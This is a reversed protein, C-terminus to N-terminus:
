RGIVQKIFSDLGIPHQSIDFGDCSNSKPNTINKYSNNSLNQVALLPLEKQCNMDEIINVGVTQLCSHVSHQPDSEWQEGIKELRVARWSTHQGGRHFDCYVGDGPSLQELSIIVGTDFHVDKELWDDVLCQVTSRDSSVDRIVREVYLRRTIDLSVETSNPFVGSHTTNSAKSGVSAIEYSCLLEDRSSQSAKEYGQDIATFRPTTPVPPYNSGM